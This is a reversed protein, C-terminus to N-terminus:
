DSESGGEKIWLKSASVHKHVLQIDPYKSFLQDLGNAFRKLEVIDGRLVFGLNAKVEMNM